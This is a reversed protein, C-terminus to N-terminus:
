KWCFRRGSGQLVHNMDEYEAVDKLRQLREATQRSSLGTPLNQLDQIRAKNGEYESPTMAGRFYEARNDPPAPNAKANDLVFTSNSWILFKNGAEVLAEKLGPNKHFVVIGETLLHNFITHFEIIKKEFAARKTASLDHPSQIEMLSDLLAVVSIMQSSLIIEDKEQLGEVHAQSFFQKLNVYVHNLTLNIKTMSKMVLVMDVPGSAVKTEGQRKFGQRLLKTQHRASAPDM